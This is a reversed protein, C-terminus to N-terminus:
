PSASELVLGHKKIYAERLALFRDAEEQSQKVLPEFGDPGDLLTPDHPPDLYGRLARMADRHAAQSDVLHTLMTKLAPDDTAIGRLEALQADAESILADLSQSLKPDDAQGSQLSGVTEALRRHLVDIGPLIPRLKQMLANFEVAPRRNEQVAAAVEPNAAVRGAVGRGILFILGGLVLGGVLQRVLGVTPRPVPWPRRLLLGAVCGSALGGLHAANDIGPWALGFLVNFLVFTLLGSRMPRLVSPPITARHVLLFAVMGGILGFIAGSAGVGVVLPHWWASAMSGGIGSALYLLAFGVNGYLREVVPGVQWLCLMNVALHILNGHLFTATLLRWWQNNLAVEVGATAGWAFLDGVNPETASVGSLVMLLYVMACIVVLSRSVVVYPTAARALAHFTQVEGLSRQAEGLWAVAAGARTVSEPRIAGALDGTRAGRALTRLVDILVQGSVEANARKPRALGRGPGKGVSEPDTALMSDPLNEYALFRGWRASESTLAVAPDDTQPTTIARDAGARGSWRLGRTTLAFSDGPLPGQSGSVIVLPLEDPALRLYKRVAGLFVRQPIEPAVFCGRRGRLPECAALAFVWWSPIEPRDGDHFVEM